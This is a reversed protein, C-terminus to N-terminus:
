AQHLLCSFTLLSVYSHCSRSSCSGSGRGSCTRLFRAIHSAVLSSYSRRWLATSEPSFASAQPSQRMGSASSCTSPSTASLSTSSNPQPTARQDIASACRPARGTPRSIEARCSGVGPTRVQRDIEAPSLGARPHKPLRALWFKVLAARAAPHAPHSHDRSARDAARGVCRHCLRGRLPQRPRPGPMGLM